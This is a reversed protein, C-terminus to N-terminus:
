GNLNQILKRSGNWLTNQDIYVRLIPLSKVTYTTMTKEFKFRRDDMTYILDSLSEASDRILFFFRLCLVLIKLSM